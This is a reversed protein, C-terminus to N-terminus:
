CQSLPTSLINKAESSPVDYKSDFFITCLFPSPSMKYLHKIPCRVAENILFILSVCATAMHLVMTIYKIAMCKGYLLSMILLALYVLLYFYYCLQITNVLYKSLLLIPSCEVFIPSTSIINSLQADFSILHFCKNEVNFSLLIKCWWSIPM